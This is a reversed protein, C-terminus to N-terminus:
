SLLLFWGSVLAGGSNKVMAPYIVPRVGKPKAFNTNWVYEFSKKCWWLHTFHFSMPITKPSKGSLYSVPFVHIQM